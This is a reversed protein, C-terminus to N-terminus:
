YIAVPLSIKKPFIKQSVSGKFTLPPPPYSSKSIIDCKACLIPQSIIHPIAYLIRSVSIPRGGEPIPSFKQFIEPLSGDATDSGGRNQPYSPPYYLSGEGRGRWLTPLYTPYHPLTTPTHPYLPAPPHWRCLRM